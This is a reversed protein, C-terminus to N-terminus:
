RGDDKVEEPEEDEDQEMFAELVDCSYVIRKMSDYNAPAVGKLMDLVNKIIKKDIKIM